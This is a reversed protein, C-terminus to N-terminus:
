SLTSLAQRLVAVLDGNSSNVPPQAASSLGRLSTVLNGASMNDLRIVPVELRRALSAVKGRGLTYDLALTPRRAAAAFVLAHFRMALVRGARQFREFVLEPSQEQELLTWDIRETPLNFERFLKRYYWRDDGGVAYTSMPVPVLLTEPEARLLELLASGLAQEFRQKLALDDDKGTGYQDAPWDRLGLLLEQQRVPADTAPRTALWRHAPDDAVGDLKTDIGLRGALARSEADRYIRIEATQLLERLHGKYFPRGLPGVGCGLLIRRLGCEAARRFLVLNEALAKVGMVPGGAFVVVGYQGVRRIAQEFSMVEVAALAPMQTVTQRSLFPELSALGFVASPYVSQLASVCGALIAKDGLTETGYWGCLLIRNSERSAVAAQIGDLKRLRLLFSAQAAPGTWRRHHTAGLRPLLGLETASQRLFRTGPSIGGYDHSCRSCKTDVIERMYEANDFYLKSSSTRTADGLSRSEVACYALEARSTLTVGRHQWNCGATRPAEYALQGILSHYTERQQSGTEYESLLNKLFVCVHYREPETLAFPDHIDQIYLRRHPVGLRFKIYTNARLAFDLTDWLGYVNDRVITCGFQHSDVGDAQRVFELVQQVASFNGKRGRVRDHVAGVGDLSMMVDLHKGYQRTVAAVADISPIVRRPILANTILSFRRLSPLRQCAVRILEPLDRRLTPEGGNIGINTIRSYLPDCLVQDLQAPTIESDRKRTWINCMECGSNCIDNVPFQLVTPKELPWPKPRFARVLNRLFSPAAQLNM